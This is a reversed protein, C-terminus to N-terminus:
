LKFKSSKNSNKNLNTQLDVLLYQSKLFDTIESSKNQKLLNEFTPNSIHLMLLHIIPIIKNQVSSLSKTPQHKEYGYEQKVYDNFSKQIIYMDLTANELLYELGKSNNSLTATLILNGSNIKILDINKSGIYKLTKVYEPKTALSHLYFTTNTSPIINKEMFHVIIDHDARYIANDLLLKSDENCFNTSKLFQLIDDKELIEDIQDANLYQPNVYLDQNDRVFKYVEGTLSDGHKNFLDFVYDDDFMLSRDIYTNQLVIRVMDMHTRTRIPLLLRRVYEAYFEKDDM